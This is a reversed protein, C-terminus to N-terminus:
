QQVLIKMLHGSSSCNIWSETLDLVAHCESICEAHVCRNLVEMARAVSHAHGRSPYTYTPPERSGLYWLRGSSKGRTTTHSVKCRDTGTSATAHRDRMHAHPVGLFAMDLVLDLYQIGQLCPHMCYEVNSGLLERVHTRESINSNTRMM